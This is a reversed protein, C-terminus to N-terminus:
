QQDPKPAPARPPQARREPDWLRFEVRFDVSPAPGDEGKPEGKDDLAEGEYKGSPGISYIVFGDPARRRRLPQGDFEDIAREALLGAQVLQELSEPWRKNALRYEEAALAACACALHTRRRADAEAVKRSTPILLAAIKPVDGTVNGPKLELDL